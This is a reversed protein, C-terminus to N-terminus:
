FESNDFRSSMRYFTQLRRKVWEQLYQNHSKAPIAFLLFYNALLQKPSIDASTNLSIGFTSEFEEDSIYKINDKFLDLVFPIISTDVIMASWFLSNFGNRALFKKTKSTINTQNWKFANSSATFYKLRRQFEPSLLDNNESLPLVLPPLGKVTPETKIWQTIIILSKDVSKDVSKEESAMVLVDSM